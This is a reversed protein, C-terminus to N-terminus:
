AERAEVAHIAWLPVFGVRGDFRAYAGDYTAKEVPCWVIADGDALGILDDPQLAALREPSPYQQPRIPPGPRRVDVLDGYGFRVTQGPVLDGDGLTVAVVAEPDVRSVSAEGRLTRDATPHAFTVVDGPRLDEPAVRRTPAEPEKPEVPKPGLSAVAKGRKVATIFRFPVNHRYLGDSDRADVGKARVKQVIAQLHRPGRRSPFALTIEDGAHIDTSPRAGAASKALDSSAVFPPTISRIATYAVRYRVTPATAWARELSSSPRKVEVTAGRPGWNTLTGSELQGRADLFQVAHGKGMHQPGLREIPEHPEGAPPSGFRV